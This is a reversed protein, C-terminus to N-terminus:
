TQDHLTPQGEWGRRRRVSPCHGGPMFMRAASEGCAQRGQNSAMSRRWWRKRSPRTTSVTFAVGTAPSLPAMSCYQVSTSRAPSLWAMRPGQCPWITRSPACAWMRLAKSSNWFGESAGNAVLQKFASQKMASKLWPVPKAIVWAPASITTSSVPRPKEWFASTRPTADVTMPQKTSVSPFNLGKSRVSPPCWNANSVQRLCGSWMPARAPAPARMAPMDYLRALTLHANTSSSSNVISPSSEIRLNGFVSSRTRSCIISAKWPSEPLGGAGSTWALNTSSPRRCPNTVTRRSFPSPMAVTVLALLTTCFRPM